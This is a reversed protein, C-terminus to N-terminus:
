PGAPVPSMCTSWKGDKEFFHRMRSICNSHHRKHHRCEYVSELRSNRESRNSHTDWLEHQMDTRLPLLLCLTHRRVMNDRLTCLPLLPLGCLSGAAFQFTRKTEECAENKAFIAKCSVVHLRVNNYRLCHVFYLLRFNLTVQTVSNVSVGSGSQLRLM